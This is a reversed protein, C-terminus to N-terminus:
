LVFLVRPVFTVPFRLTQLIYKQARVAYKMLEIVWSGSQSPPHERSVSRKSGKGTFSPPAPETGLDPPTRVETPHLNPAPSFYEALTPLNERKGTARAAGRDKQGEGGAAGQLTM